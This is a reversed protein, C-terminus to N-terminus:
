PERKRALLLGQRVPAAAAELSPDAAVLRNFADVADRSPTAGPAADIWWSGSGLVNDAALVGGPKLLPALIRWCDAYERKDGDLFAVDISAPGLEAALRPLIELAPGRRVEVREALGARALAREAFDAHGPDIEITIMRGGPRLARALWATSYGGLTGVEVIRSPGRGRGTLGAVVSLLRGVEASIAIDPLGTAAADARLARLAEDERGFVEQLYTTTAAWRAPTMTPADDPEPM